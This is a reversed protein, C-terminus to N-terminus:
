SHRYKPEARRAFLLDARGCTCDSASLRVLRYFVELRQREWIQPPVRRLIRLGLSFIERNLFLTKIIRDTCFSNTILELQFFLTLMFSAM